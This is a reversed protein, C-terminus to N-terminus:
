NQKRRWRIGGLGLKGIKKLNMVWADAFGQAERNVVPPKTNSLAM